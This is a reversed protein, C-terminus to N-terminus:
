RCTLLAFSTSLYILGAWRRTRERPDAHQAFSMRSVLKFGSSFSHTPVQFATIKPCLLWPRDQDSPWDKLALKTAVRKTSSELESPSSPPCACAVRQTRLSASAWLGWWFRILKPIYVNRHTITSGELAAGFTRKLDCWLLTELFRLDAPFACTGCCTGGREVETELFDEGVESRCKVAEVLGSSGRLVEDPRTSPPAFGSKMRM